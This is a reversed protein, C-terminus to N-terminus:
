KAPNKLSGLKQHIGEQLRMAAVARPMKFLTSIAPAEPHPSGTRPPGGVLQLYPTVGNVLGNISTVVGNILPLPGVKYSCHLFGGGLM